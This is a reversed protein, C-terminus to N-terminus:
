CLENYKAAHDYVLVQAEEEDMYITFGDDHNRGYSFGSYGFQWYIDGAMKEQRALNQWRTLVEVRTEPRSTGLEQSRKEPTLWGYEEHVVPKGAKRGAEIHDLIWQDTWDLTKSWWDPYTHFVGFDINPLSIEHDFDGGDSGNYTWDDSQRNFTGEGGWTVLHNSDLSKVYTSMEDIWSGLLEPGCDNSRPLNRGSEGQCRPENALEWAMIAPSDKYRTVVEKVYRKYADKVIPMRYFDDHYQGGLNVVYVDMGGFDAWNNTLAVILKMGFKNAADVVKDFPSMDITSEGNDWRQFVVTEEGWDGYKPMGEADYTVNKDNFGWTRLVKLGAEQAAKMGLELDNQNQHSCTLTQVHFVDCRGRGRPLSSVNNFPFYYINSGAFCFGKGDLEFTGNRATVFGQDRAGLTLPNVTPSSNIGSALLGLSLLLNQSRM